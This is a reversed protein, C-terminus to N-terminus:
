KVCESLRRLGERLDEEEVDLVPTIQYGGLPVFYPWVGASLCQSRLEHSAKSRDESSGQFLMGWMLGQGQCRVFGNTEKELAELAKQLISGMTFIHSLIEKSTLMTLVETGTLLARQSSGAYTHMGM